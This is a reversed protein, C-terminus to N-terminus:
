SMINQKICFLITIFTKTFHFWFWLIYRIRFRSHMSNPIIQRMFCDAFRKQAKAFSEGRADSSFAFMKFM